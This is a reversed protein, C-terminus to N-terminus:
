PKKVMHVQPRGKITTVHYKRWGEKPSEMEVKFGPLPWQEAKVLLINSSSKSSTM